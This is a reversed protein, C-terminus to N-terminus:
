WTKRWVTAEGCLERHPARPKLGLLVDIPNQGALRPDALPEDYENRTAAGPVVVLTHGPRKMWAFVARASDLSLNPGTLYLVQHDRRELAGRQEADTLKLDQDDLFDVSYGAHSLAHYLGQPEKAYYDTYGQTGHWPDWLFDDNPMLIAVRPRDPVARWAIPEARGLVEMAHAIPGYVETHEGWSDGFADISGFGYFQFGKAGHGLNALVKYLAGDALDGISGGNVMFQGMTPIPALARDRRTEVDFGAAMSRLVAAVFSAEEARADLAGLEFSPNFAGLRIAAFLDPRLM